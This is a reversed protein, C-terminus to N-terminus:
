YRTQGFIKFLDSELEIYTGFPSTSSFYEMREWVMKIVEEKQSLSLNELTAWIIITHNVSLRIYKM